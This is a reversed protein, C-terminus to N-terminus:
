YARNDKITFGFFLRIKTSLYCSATDVVAKGFHNLVDRQVAKCLRYHTVFCPVGKLRSCTDRSYFNPQRKKMIFWCLFCASIMM